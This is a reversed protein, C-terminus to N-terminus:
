FDEAPNPIWGWAVPSGGRELPPRARARIAGALDAARWGPNNDLLRAALAAVRPVAFSSGSATAAAGTHDIVPVNEGPVMLDVHRVGWNSGQALRGFDDASTVVIVNELELVAPYLADIDIDRSDNGASVVFLIDPHLRMAGAFATWEDPRRSGLPMMAIRAGARAIDEVIDAMRNMDPRPYRFPILAAAPAERLLISAVATGHRVPFFPSRSTDLDYPRDDMDWYDYGVIGGGADRALRDAVAPLLYNVGSDIHAVRVKGSDGSRNGSPPVPPNLPEPTGDSLLDSGLHVLTEARGAAYDLRRGLVVACGGDADLLLRPRLDGEATMEALEARVRRVTGAFATIRVTTEFGDTREFTMERLLVAEPQGRDVIQAVDGLPTKLSDPASLGQKCALVLTDRLIDTPLQATSAAAGGGALALLVVATRLAFFM